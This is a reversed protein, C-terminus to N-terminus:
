HKELEARHSQVGLHDMGFRAAQDLHQRAEATNGQGLRGLAVRFHAEGKWTPEPPEVGFIGFFDPPWGDRLICEGSEVLKAFQADAEATRGLRRFAMGRYYWAEAWGSDFGSAKELQAKAENAQGIAEYATAVLYHVRAARDGGAWPRGTEFNEPYETAALFDKLAEAAKGAAMLQQGRLLHADVYMAHPGNEGEWRSFHHASLLSLARDYHSLMTCLSVHRLLTDDRTDAAGAHQDLMALRDARPIKAEEAVHDWDCYVLPDNPNCAIAKALSAAGKVHDGDVRSYALGLNRHVTAFQPDLERSREWATIARRPQINYLVNGLYYYARADRPNAAVARELVDISELRFPFCYDPSMKGALDRFKAARQGDGLQQCAHALDYYVMPNVRAKDASIDVFGTLVDIVEKWAGCAAYDAAMELYAEAVGRMLSQLINQGHEAAAKDSEQVILLAERAGWFDLPDLSQTEKAASLAEELRGLKRLAYAKLTIAKTNATNTRLSRALFDLAAAYDGKRCASEALAYYCPSAFAYDWAARQFEEDAADYRGQGRLAVGLYYLAEANKPSTFHHTLRAAATRLRQEAEAYRGRKCYLIGLATNAHSENPDRRLVEEYYPDSALAPNHFQELRLGIQCLEDITKVDKPRSPPTVPPPLPTGRRKAPQYSILERAGDLVALRLDEPKVDPKLVVEAAFPQAPDIATKQDLLTTEGQKLVVRADRVQVTTNVAVRATHKADVDLNIAAERNANKMGGLERVPYWYETVVRTEYPHVWSYDPQNDSYAGAMLEIYPGDTETLVKDWMQGEEGAGWTFFKKGPAVHHDAVHVVGAQKGHDYGGVFDDEYNWAFISIPSPHNKWWSVDVGTRDLKHYVEQGIPWHVFERKAHQTGFETNPPFIVQYDPGCHVAANAFCLMSWPLGTRNFLKTTVEVYSRDPRLTLGVLWKMRHRLETEGVWVTKSGDPNEVMRCDVPMSTTVRHHHPINWEVGGSIWAGAMGVLAPKIVHQRYFFDYRNTKDQGTLIRGGLEPLISLQVYKNELYVARYTKDERKQSLRDLMPYPYVPGQAGQYKRGAYFIPNKDAQGLLYTPIVLPEQWVRVASDGANASALCVSLVIAAQSLTNCVMNKELFSM